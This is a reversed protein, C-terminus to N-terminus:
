AENILSSMCIAIWYELYLIGMKVMIDMMVFLKVDVYMMFLKAYMMFLKAYMMFEIAVLKIAV